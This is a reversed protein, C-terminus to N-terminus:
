VRFGLGGQKLDVVLVAHGNCLKRREVQTVMDAGTTELGWVGLVRFGLVRFDM